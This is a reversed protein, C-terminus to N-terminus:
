EISVGLTTVNITSVVRHQYRLAKWKNVLYKMSVYLPKGNITNVVGLKYM